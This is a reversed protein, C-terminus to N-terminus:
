LFSKLKEVIEDDAMDDVDVQTWDEEVLKAFAGKRGETMKHFLWDFFKYQVLLQDEPKDSVNTSLNWVRNVMQSVTIKM